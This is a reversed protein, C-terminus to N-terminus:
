LNIKLEGTAEDLREFLNPHIERAQKENIKKTRTSLYDPSVCGWNVPSNPHEYVSSFCEFCKNIHYQELKSLEYVAIVNGSHNGIKERTAARKEKGSPYELYFTFNKM